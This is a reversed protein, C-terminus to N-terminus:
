LTYLTLTVSQYCDKDSLCCSKPDLFISPKIANTPMFSVSNTNLSAHIHLIICM